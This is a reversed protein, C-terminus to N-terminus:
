PRLTRATQLTLQRAFSLRIPALHIASLLWAWRLRAFREPRLRPGASSGALRGSRQIVLPFASRLPCAAALRAPPGSCTSCPALAGQRLLLLPYAMFWFPPRSSSAPSKGLSRATHLIPANQTARSLTNAM